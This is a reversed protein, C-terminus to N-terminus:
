KLLCHNLNRLKVSGNTDLIIMILEDFIGNNISSNGKHLISVRALDPFIRNKKLSWTIGLNWGDFMVFTPSTWWKMCKSNEALTMFPLFSCTWTLVKVREKQYGSYLFPPSVLIFIDRCWESPNGDLKEDRFHHFFLVSMPLFSPGRWESRAGGWRASLLEQNGFLWAQKFRCPTKGRFPCPLIEVTKKNRFAIFM